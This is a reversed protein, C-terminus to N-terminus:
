SPPRRGGRPSSRARQVWANLWSVCHSGASFIARGVAYLALSVGAVLPLRIWLPFLTTPYYSKADARVMAVLTVFESREYQFAYLLIAAITTVGFLTRLSFRWPSSATGIRRSALVAGLIAAAALALDVLAYGVNFAADTLRRKDRPPAFIQGPQPEAYSRVGCVLPRGYSLRSYHFFGHSLSIGDQRGSLNAHAFAFVIVLIASVAGARRFWGKSDKDHM